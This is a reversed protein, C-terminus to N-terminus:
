KRALYLDITNNITISSGNKLVASEIEKFFVEKISLIMSRHDSYTNLLSIYDSANFNRTQKYLKVQVDKFGYSKITESVKKYRELDNEVKVTNSPMYKQYISQIKKNLLDDKLSPRNWFLALTGHNKLLKLVKKYGIEEPIWHFATASYLLAISNEDGNYDEFSTNYIRLNKYEKFKEQSYEVLNQGLEIAMVECGTKLFPRTAQGTGIGVEIAKKNENLNSYEIIDNFLEKCYTPRWKDYNKADENFTLRIDM